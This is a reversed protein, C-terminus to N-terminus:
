IDELLSAAGEDLILTCSPHLQLVSAPVEETVPGEVAKKIAEAKNKGAALLLISRAHMITKLGMTIAAEPVERRSAFFRANARITEAALKVPHTLSGFPTGPENFGIHANVGIGLLQLDIGGADDILQQYRQCEAEPDQCIGLPLHRHEPKINVASFLNEEMYYNYSQPHDARLGLYEDLNFSRVESFDLGGYQHAKILLRYTELPTSGTALGLVSSPRKSIQGEFVSAAVRSVESLTEKIILKM